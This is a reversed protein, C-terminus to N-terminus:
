AQRLERMRSFRQRPRMKGAAAPQFGAICDAM